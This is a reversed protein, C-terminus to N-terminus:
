DLRGSKSELGAASRPEAPGPLATVNTASFSVPLRVRVATGESSSDIEFGGGLNRIRERMGVIGLGHDNTRKTDNVSRAMGRGRDRVELLIADSSERLLIDADVSKAHRRVNSLCEQVVRFLATEVDSTLRGSRLNLRLRVRIGSEKVFRKTYWRLTAALGLEDLVPPHLLNTLTRIESMCEKLLGNCLSLSRVVPGNSRRVVAALQFHLAALKQATSDHLERAIRRREEEQAKLLLSSLRHLELVLAKRRDNDTALEIQAQRLANEAVKRERIDQLMWLLEAPDNKTRVIREASLLAPFPPAGDPRLHVEESKLTEGKRLRPLLIHTNRDGLGVLFLSIPKGLLRETRRGLLTRMTQNAQLIVGREDTLLCGLPARDFLDLYRRRELDVQQNAELLHSNQRQMEVTVAELEAFTLMLEDLTSNLLEHRKREDQAM